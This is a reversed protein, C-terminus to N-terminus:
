FSWIESRQDRASRLSQSFKLFFLFVVCFWYVCSLKVKFSLFVRLSQSFEVRGLLGLLGFFSEVAHRLCRRM